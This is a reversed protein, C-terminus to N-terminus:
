SERAALHLAENKFNLVNMRKVVQCVYAACKIHSSVNAPDKKIFCIVPYGVRSVSVFMDIFIVKDM